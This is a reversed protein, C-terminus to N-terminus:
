TLVKRQLVLWLFLKVKMWGQHKWLNQWIRDPAQSDLELFIIKAEKLNFKGENNNGWRLRDQRRSVLIKRQELM